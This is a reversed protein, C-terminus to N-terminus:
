SLEWVEMDRDLVWHKSKGRQEELEATVSEQSRWSGQTQLLDLGDQLQVLDGHVVPLDDLAARDGAEVEEHPDVVDNVVDGLPDEGELLGAGIEDLANLM